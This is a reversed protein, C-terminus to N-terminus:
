QERFVQWWRLFLYACKRWFSAEQDPKDTQPNWVQQSSFNHELADSMKKVTLPEKIIFASAPPSNKADSFLPFHGTYLTNHDILMVQTNRSIGSSEAQFNAKFERIHIGQAILSKRQNRYHVFEAASKNSTMSDCLLTIHVGRQRAAALAQRISSPFNPAPIQLQISSRADQILELLRLDIQEHAMDSHLYTSHTWNGNIKEALNSSNLAFNQNDSLSLRTRAYGQITQYIVNIKKDRPSLNHLIFPHEPFVEGIDKSLPHQWVQDFHKRMSNLAVGAILFDRAVANGDGDIGGQIALLDDVMISQERLSQHQPKLGSFYDWLRIGAYNSVRHQPNFVRISILPHRALSFLTKDSFQLTRDDITLRIKVGRETADLLTAALRTSAEDIRWESLILDVKQTAQAILLRTAIQSANDTALPIVSTQGPHAQTIKRIGEADTTLQKLDPSLPTIPTSASLVIDDYPTVADPIAQDLLWYFVLVAILVLNLKLRNSPTM